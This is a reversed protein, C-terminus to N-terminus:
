GPPHAAGSNRPLPPAAATHTRLWGPIWVWGTRGTHECQALTETRGIYAQGGVWGGVMCRRVCVCVLGSLLAAVRAGGALVHVAPHHPPVLGLCQGGRLLAERPARQLQHLYAPPLATPAPPSQHMYPQHRPFPRLSATPTPLPDHLSVPRSPPCPQNRRCACETCETDGPVLRHSERTLSLAARRSRRAAGPAM